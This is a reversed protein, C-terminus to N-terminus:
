HAITETSPPTSVYGSAQDLAYRAWVSISSEGAAAVYAAKRSATLRMRFQDSATEGDIPPRGGPNKKRKRTRTKM